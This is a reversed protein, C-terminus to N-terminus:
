TMGYVIVQTIWSHHFKSLIKIVNQHCKISNQPIKMFIQYFKLSIKIVNQHFKAEAEVEVGVYNFASNANNEVEVVSWWVM